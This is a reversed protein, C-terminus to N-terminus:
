WDVSSGKDETRVGSTRVSYKAWRVELSGHLKTCSYSNLRDQQRPKWALIMYHLSPRLPISRCVPVVVGYRQADSESLHCGQGNANRTRSKSRARKGAVHGFVSVNPWSSLPGSLQWYGSNTDNHTEQLSQIRHSFSSVAERATLSTLQSIAVSTEPADGDDYLDSQSHLCIHGGFFLLLVDSLRSRV